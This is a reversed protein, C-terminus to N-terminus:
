NYRPQYESYESPHKRYEEYDSYYYFWGDEIEECSVQYSTKPTTQGEVSCAIGCSVDGATRDWIVFSVTNNEYKNDLCIYSCGSAWLRRISGKVEGSDTEHWELEYFVKGDVKSIYASDCELEKLYNVVIDIDGRHLTLFTHADESSPPYYNLFDKTLLLTPFIVFIIAFLVYIPTKKKNIITM